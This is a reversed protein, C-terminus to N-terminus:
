PFQTYSPLNTPVAHPHLRTKYAAELGAGNVLATPIGSQTQIVHNGTVTVGQLAHGGCAANASILGASPDNQISYNGIYAIPGGGCGGFSFYPSVGAIADTILPIYMADWVANNRVTVYMTGNDTYIAWSPHVQKLVVNNEIVEANAMSSGEIGDTYIGGGDVTTIMHNFILNNAIRNSNSYNALPPLNPFREQWGGWGISIGSYPVDDIQNHVINSKQAYGFVIAPADQYEVGINTLYNDTVNINSVQQGGQANPQDLGGVTLGSSSIDTFLNGAVQANQSADGLSLGVGGLHQFTDSAFTINQDNALTVNGPTQPWDMYPCTPQPTPCSGPQSWAGTGTLRAGAQFSSYGDPGSPGNWGAYSFTMGTFTIDHVPADTTGNASILTDIGPAVVTAKTMDQGPLPHYSLVHTQSDLYWQGPQALLERANAVISPPKLQQGFGSTNIPTGPTDRKSTNDFCPQVMTIHTGAIAAVRCRSETWNSPGSPYIFEIDQPNAWTSMIANSANYGDATPTLIAPVFGQALQARKGDVYLQRTQLTAPAMATWIGSQDKPAQWGTITIGGSIVAGSGEGRWIIKHGNVGSDQSGLDLPQTLLYTGSNMHITLDSKMGGARTSATDRAATLSTFPHAESGDGNTGSPQIWIDSASTVDSTPAITATNSSSCAALGVIITLAVTQTGRRFIQKVRHWPIDFQHRRNM